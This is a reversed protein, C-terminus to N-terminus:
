TRTRIRLFYYPSMACTKETLSERCLVSQNGYCLRYLNAEEDVIEVQIGRASAEDILSQAYINV